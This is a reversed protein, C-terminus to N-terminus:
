QKDETQDPDSERNPAQFLNQFIQVTTRDLTDVSYSLYFGVLFAVLWHLPGVEGATLTVLLYFVTVLLLAAPVRLSIKFLARRDMDVHKFIRIFVFAMAGVFSYVYIYFRNFIQAIPEFGLPVYRRDVVVVSVTEPGIVILLIAVLSFLGFQAVLVRGVWTEHWVTVDTDSAGNSGTM